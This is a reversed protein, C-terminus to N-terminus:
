NSAVRSGTVCIAFQVPSVSNRVDHETILLIRVLPLHTSLNIRRLEGPSATSETTKVGASLDRGAFIEWKEM